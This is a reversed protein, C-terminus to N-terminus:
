VHFSSGCHCKSKENPNIFVFGERIDKKEYDIVTGCIFMVANPHIRLVIDDFKEIVENKVANHAFEMNYAYGSCGKKIVGIRLGNVSFPNSSNYTSIRRQLESLAYATVNIIRMYWINFFIM